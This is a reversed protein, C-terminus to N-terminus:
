AGGQHKGEEPKGIRGEIEGRGGPDYKTPM